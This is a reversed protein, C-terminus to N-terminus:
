ISAALQWPDIVSARGDVECLDRFHRLNRTALTCGRALVIGALLTDRLEGPRGAEERLAALRAAREAAARDLGLVRGGLDDAILAEFAEELAARRRGAHMRALGFRVEFVTISSTWVGEPPQRDLWRLVPEDPPERMLASLVNTDLVIM